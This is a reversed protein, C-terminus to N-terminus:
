KQNVFAIGLNLSLWTTCIMQLFLFKTFTMDLYYINVVDFLFRLYVVFNIM